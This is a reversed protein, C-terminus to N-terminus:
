RHFLTVRNQQRMQEYDVSRHSGSLLERITEPIVVGSEGFSSRTRGINTCIM